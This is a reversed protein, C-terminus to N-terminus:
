SSLKVEFHKRYLLKISFYISLSRLSILLDVHNKIKESESPEYYTTETINHHPRKDPIQYNSNENAYIYSFHLM